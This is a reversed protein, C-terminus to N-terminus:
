VWHCHDYKALFGKVRRSTGNFSADYCPVTKSHFPLVFQLYQAMSNATDGEEWRVRTETKILGFM